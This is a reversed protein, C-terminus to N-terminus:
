NGSCSLLNWDGLKARTFFLCFSVLDFGKFIGEDEKSFILYWPFLSFPGQASYPPDKSLLGSSWHHVLLTEMLWQQVLGSRLVVAFRWPVFLTLDTVRGAVADTGSDGVRPKVAGDLGAACLQM